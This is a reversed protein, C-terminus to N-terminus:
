VAAANLCAGGASNGTEWRRSANVARNPETGGISQARDTDYVDLM